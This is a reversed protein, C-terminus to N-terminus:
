DEESYYLEERQAGCAPCSDPLEDALKGMEGCSGCKWMTAGRRELDPPEGIPIETENKNRTEDQSLDGARDEDQFSM